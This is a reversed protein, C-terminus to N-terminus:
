GVVDADTFFRGVAFRWEYIDAFSAGVGLVPAYFRREGAAVWGRLKAGPAVRKVGPVGKAIADADEPVLTTAAGRGSAIKSEEGGRTYNGADVHVIRTGASRVDQSVSERAGDGLALMTVVAAEGIVIGLTTLLTRLKHRRLGRLAGRLATHMPYEYRLPQIPDVPAALRAPYWGFFVGVSAAVGVALVVAGASVAASWRLYESLGLAAMVGVVVGATAGVLSLTVAELMFQDRVDRARAGVSRRIGIERTRETVSLLMINMIGIGGVLLSVSAIGALLATMTQSA